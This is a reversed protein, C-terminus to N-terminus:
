DEEKALRILGDIKGKSNWHKGLRYILCALGFGVSKVAVLTLLSAEESTESLLLLAAATGLVTLAHTRWNTFPILYKNM